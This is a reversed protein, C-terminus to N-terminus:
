VNELLDNLSTALSKLKEDRLLAHQILNEILTSYKIGSAEFLKPYMSISTFGPLTNVENVYYNGDNEVFFDVRAMGEIELADCVQIAINKFKEHDINKAPIELSAGNDDLYKAEYTYFEHHPIIEGAISAVYDPGGMVAIEIERGSIAKEILIKQDLKLVETAAAKLEDFNKCKYVGVSSGLNAAKVFCPYTIQNKLESIKELNKISFSPTVSIGVSSLVKKTLDKDMGIASGAVSPGVYPIALVDFFGQFAGNEGHGGHMTSFVVEIGMEKIEHPFIKKLQNKVEDVVTANEFDSMQTCVYIQGDKSVPFLVIGFKEKDIAQFVSKISRVSVEHEFSKGGFFLGILVKNKM